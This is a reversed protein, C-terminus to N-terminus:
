QNYYLHAEIKEIQAVVVPDRQSYFSQRIEITNSGKQWVGTPVAAEIRYLKQKPNVKYDGKGGSASQPKPSFVQPDKWEPDYKVPGLKEDGWRMEILDGDKMGFLVVRLTLLIKGGAPSDSIHVVFKSPTGGADLLAPLPATDNRNFFGDAWPYGGRREVAFIKDKGAMTELSGIERFAVQHTLPAIEGGIQKAVEPPGMAWNFTVVSDAGRALHNAFVGRLFEIPAYRYGDTAHHDDFCPQLHVDKGTASRIGEVDVDMSRTGLTLIDVLHQEAWTRVDVGDARCGEMTQPIRAALLYPRGRKQAVDLLMRRVMRMFETAHERMEWQRGPPLFPVHRALDIQIGDLDYRSVIEELVEVKHRRLGESALNWLGQKWFSSPLVWDPHAVKLPHKGDRDQGGNPKTDVESIRHNWFVELGRRRTEKTLEGVWDIGKKFWQKVLWHEPPPYVSSPYVSGVSNGGIDWWIADVQSGPEDVYSFVTDRFREFPADGEPHMKAYNWMVWCVDHQMVIRRKRLRMVELHDGPLNVAGSMVAPLGPLASVLATCATGAGFIRRKMKMDNM